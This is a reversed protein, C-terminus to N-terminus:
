SPSGTFDEDVDIVGGRIDETGAVVTFTPTEWPLKEVPEVPTTM